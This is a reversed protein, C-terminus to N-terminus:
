LHLDVYIFCSADPFVFVFRIWTSGVDVPLGFSRFILSMRCALLFLSLPPPFCCYVVFLVGIELLNFPSTFFNCTVVLELIFITFGLLFNKKVAFQRTFVVVVVVSPYDPRIFGVACYIRFFRLLLSKWDLVAHCIFNSTFNLSKLPVFLSFFVFFVCGLTHFGPHRRFTLRSVRAWVCFFSVCLPLVLLFLM